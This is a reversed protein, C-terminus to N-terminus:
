SPLAPAALTSPPPFSNLSSSNTDCPLFLRRHLSPLLHLRRLPLLLAPSSYLCRPCLPPLPLSSLSRSAEVQRSFGISPSPVVLLGGFRDLGRLAILRSHFSVRLGRLQKNTRLPALPEFFLLAYHQANRSAFGPSLHGPTLPLFGGHFM